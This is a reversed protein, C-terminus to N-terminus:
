ETCNDDQHCIHSSLSCLYLPLYKFKSPNSFLHKILNMFTLHVSPASFSVLLSILCLNSWAPTSFLFSWNTPQLTLILSGPRGLYSCLCLCIHITRLCCPLAPTLAKLLPFFSGQKCIRSGCFTQSLPLHPFGSTAMSLSTGRYTLRGSSRYTAGRESVLLTQPSGSSNWMDRVPHKQRACLRQQVPPTYMVVRQTLMQLAHATKTTQAQIRSRTCHLQPVPELTWPHKAISTMGSLPFYAFRCMQLNKKTCVCM